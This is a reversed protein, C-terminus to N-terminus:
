CYADGCDGRAMALFQRAMGICIDWERKVKDRGQRDKPGRADELEHREWWTRAPQQSTRSIAQSFM